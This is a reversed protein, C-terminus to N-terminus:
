FVACCHFKTKGTVRCRGHRTNGGCVCHYCGWQSHGSPVRGDLGGLPMCHALRAEALDAQFSSHTPVFFGGKSSLGLRIRRHLSSHRSVMIMPLRLARHKLLHAWPPDAWQFGVLHSLSAKTSARRERDDM